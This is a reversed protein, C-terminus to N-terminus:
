ENLSWDYEMFDIEIGPPIKSASYQNLYSILDMQKEFDERYWNFLQSVLIQNTSIQNKKPNNIFEKALRDLNSELNDVNFARNYLKPCSQAACNLAFHIRADFFEKRIIEHEIMNLSLTLEGIHINKVDWVKGGELDMISKLPYNSVILKVTFANYANILYSLSQERSWDSKPWNEQLDNLYYDLKKIDSQFGKYNVKGDESVHKKLLENWVSHDQANLNLSCLAILITLFLSFLTKLISM